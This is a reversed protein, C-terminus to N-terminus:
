PSASNERELEYVSLPLPAPYQATVDVYERVVRYGSPIGPHADVAEKPVILVVHEDNTIKATNWLEATERVTLRKVEPCEYTLYTNFSPVFERGDLITADIVTHTAAYRCVLRTFAMSHVMPRALRFEGFYFNANSALAAVAFALCAVMVSSEPLGLGRRIVTALRKFTWAVGFCAFVIAAPLRHFTPPPMTLMVGFVFFPAVWSACTWGSPSRLGVLVVAAALPIAAATVADVMSRPASYNPVNDKGTNFMTLCQKIHKTIMPWFKDGLEDRNQKSISYIANPHGAALESQSYIEAGIPLLLLLAIVEVTITLSLAKRWGVDSWWWWGAAVLAIVAPIIHSAYYTQTGIGLAIGAAIWWLFGGGTWARVFPWMVIAAALPTLTYIQVTRSFHVLTHASAVLLAATFGTVNGALRRAFAFTFTVTLTGMIVGAARAGWLHGGFLEQTLMFPVLQMTPMGVMYLSFWDFPAHMMKDRAAFAYYAEDAEVWAPHDAFGYATRMVLAVVILVLYAIALTRPSWEDHDPRKERRHGLSHAVGVALFAVVGLSWVLALAGANSGQLRMLGAAVLLGVGPLCAAFWRWDPIDISLSVEGDRTRWTAYVALVAALLFLPWVFWPAAANQLGAGSTLRVSELVGQATAAFALAVIAALARIRPKELSPPKM